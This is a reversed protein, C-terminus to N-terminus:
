NPFLAFGNVLWSATAARPDLELGDVLLFKHNAAVRRAAARALVEARNQDAIILVTFQFEGALDAAAESRLRQRGQGSFKAFFFALVTRKDIKWRFLSAFPHLSDRRGHHFLHVPHIWFEDRFDFERLPCAVSFKALWNEEAHAFILVDGFYFAFGGLESCNTSGSEDFTSTISLQECNTSISLGTGPRVLVRM